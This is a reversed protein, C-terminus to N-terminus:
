YDPIHYTTDAHTPLLELLGGIGILLLGFWAVWVGAALEIRFMFVILAPLFSGTTGLADIAPIRLLMFFALGFSILALFMGIYRSSASPLLFSLPFWAFGAVGTLFVLVILIASLFDTNFLPFLLLWGPIDVLKSFASVLKAAKKMGRHELITEVIDPTISLDLVSITVWSLFFFSGLVMLGGILTLFRRSKSAPQQISRQWIFAVLFVVVVLLFFFIIM